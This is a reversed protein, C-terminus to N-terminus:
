QEIEMGHFGAGYKVTMEENLQNNEEILELATEKLAQEDADLDLRRFFNTSIKVTLEAYREQFDSIRQGDEKSIKTM